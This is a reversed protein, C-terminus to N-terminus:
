SALADLIAKAADGRSKHWQSKAFAVAALPDRRTIARQTMKVAVCCEQRKRLSASMLDDALGAADTTFSGFAVDAGKLGRPGVAAM